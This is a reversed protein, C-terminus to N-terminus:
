AAVDRDTGAHAAIWEPIFREARLAAVAKADGSSALAVLAGLDALFREHERAHRVLSQASRERLRREEADFTRRATSLLKEALRAVSALKAGPLASVLRDAHQLMENRLEGMKPDPCDEATWKHNM